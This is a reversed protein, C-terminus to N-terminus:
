WPVYFKVFWGAGNSKSPVLSIHQTFTESTLVVSQGSPNAPPGASKLKTSSFGPETTSTAITSTASLQSDIFRAISAFDRDDKYPYEDVKKGDVFRYHTM